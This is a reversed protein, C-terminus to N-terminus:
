KALSFIVDNFVHCINKEFIEYTYKSLFKQRGNKGLDRILKNDSILLKIKLALMNPDDKEFLLGTIGDDIIEPLSGEHSAIVPLSFQMAELVVIGFAEFQSPFIFIDAQNFFDYKNVGKPDMFIKVEKKLDNVIIMEEVDKLSLDSERGVIFAQYKVNESKLLHLSNIFVTLGKSKSFNSYYLLIPHQNIYHKPKIFHDDIIKLGNSVIYPNNFYCKEIDHQVLKSLCIINENQFVKTILRKNFNNKNCFSELGKGHLHFLIRKNFLKCLFVLIIDRYVASGTTSLQFYVLVPKFTILKYLISLIYKIFLLLKSTNLKGLEHVNENYSIEISDITFEKNLLTSGRVYQNMLTAGTM